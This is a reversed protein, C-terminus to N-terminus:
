RPSLGPKIHRAPAGPLRVTEPRVALASRGARRDRRMVTPSGAGLAGNSSGTSSAISVSTARRTMASNMRPWSSCAPKSRRTSPSDPPISEATTANRTDSAIPASRRSATIIGYLVEDGAERASASDTM